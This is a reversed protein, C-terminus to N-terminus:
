LTATPAFAANTPRGAPSELAVRRTTPQPASHPAPAPRGALVTPTSAPQARHGMVLLITLLSLLLLWAKTSPVKSAAQVVPLNPSM